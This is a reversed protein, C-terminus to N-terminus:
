PLLSIRLNQKHTSFIRLHEKIAERLRPLLFIITYVTLVTGIQPKSIDITKAVPRDFNESNSAIGKYKRIYHILQMYYNDGYGQKTYDDTDSSYGTAKTMEIDRSWETNFTDIWGNVNSKQAIWENWGTVFVMEPDQNIANEWQEAFNRGELINKVVGNEPTKKSYGRGYFGNEHGFGKTIGFSCPGSFQCVSVNMLNTYLHQPKALDMYPFGDEKTKELPWQATRIHFFEKMEGPIDKLKDENAIILPKEYPGYFWLEKYLERKYLYQYVHKVAEDSRTNTFFVIQPVKFGAVRYEDLINLITFWVQTM